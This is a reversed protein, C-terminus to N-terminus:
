FWPAPMPLRGVRTDATVGSRTSGTRTFIDLGLLLLAVIPFGRSRLLTRAAHRYEQTENTMIMSTAAIPGSATTVAKPPVEIVLRTGRKRGASRQKRVVPQVPHELSTAAAIHETGPRAPETVSVKM